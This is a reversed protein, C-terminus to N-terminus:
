AAAQASGRAAAGSRSHEGRVVYFQAPTPADLLQSLKIQEDILQRPPNQLYVFTM